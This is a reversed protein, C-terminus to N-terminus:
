RYYIIDHYRIKGAALGFREARSQGDQKSVQIFNYYARHIDILKQILSPDYPSYGRWTRRKNSAVRIPRELGSLDRRVNQFYRDVVHLSAKDYLHALLQRDIPARERLADGLSSKLAEPVRATLHLMRREPEAMNAFPHWVWPERKGGRQDRLFTPHDIAELMRIMRCEEWTETTIRHQLRRAALWRKFAARSQGVLSRRRNVTLGKAIMLYFAEIRDALVEDRFASMMASRIGPERETYFCIRDAGGVLNRLLRFHAHLTYDDHVLMGQDPLKRTSVQADDDSDEEEDDAAAAEEWEDYLNEAREKRRKERVDAARDGSQAFDPDLWLRAYKRMAVPKRFDAERIADAEVAARKAAPDYAVNMALVYGKDVVATAVGTIQINRADASANWNCLYAQRDTALLLEKLAHGRLQRERDGMFKLCQEQLFDIKDYVTPWSIELVDAIKSLSVRARLLKFFLINIESRRQGSIASRPVSLLTKCNKCRYRKSGAETKGFEQYFRAADRDSVAHGHSPCHDDPCSPGARPNLYRSIREEEELIAGNSRLTVIEKCGHCRMEGGDVAYLDRHRPPDPPASSGAAVRVRKRCKACRWAESVVNDAWVDRRYLEPANALPKGHNPCNPDPCAAQAAVPYVRKLVHGEPRGQHLKELHPAAGFNTCNPNRCHNVQVGQVPEPISRQEAPAGGSGGPIPTPPPSEPSAMGPTGSDSSNKPMVPVM